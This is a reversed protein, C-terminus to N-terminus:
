NTPDYEDVPTSKCYKETFICFYTLAIGTAQRPRRLAAQTARSWFAFDLSVPAGRGFVSSLCNQVPVLSLSTGRGPILVEVESCGGRCSLFASPPLSFFLCDAFAVRTRSKKDDSCLSCPSRFLHM